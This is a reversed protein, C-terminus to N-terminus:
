SPSTQMFAGGIFTEHFNSPAFTRVTCLNGAPPTTLASPGSAPQEQLVVQAFLDGGTQV